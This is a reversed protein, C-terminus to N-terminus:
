ELNIFLFELNDKNGYTVSSIKGKINLDISYGIKERFWQAEEISNVTLIVYASVRKAGPITLITGFNPDIVAFYLKFEAAAAGNWNVWKGTEDNKASIERISIVSFSVEKNEWEGLAKKRAFPLIASIKRVDESHLDSYYKKLKSEYKKLDLKWKELDKPNNAVEETLQPMKPPLNQSFHPNLTEAFLTAGLLAVTIVIVSYSKDRM